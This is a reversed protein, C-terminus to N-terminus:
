THSWSPDSAESLASRAAALVAEHLRRLRANRIGFCVAVTVVAPILVWWFAWQALAALLIYYFGYFLVIAGLSGIVIFGPTLLGRLIDVLLEMGSELLRGTGGCLSAVVDLTEALADLGAADGLVFCSLADDWVVADHVVHRSAGITTLLHGAPAEGYLAPGFRLIMTHVAARTGGFRVPFAVERNAVAQPAAPTGPPWTEASM